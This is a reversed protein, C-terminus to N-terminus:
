VPLVENHLFAHHSNELYTIEPDVVYQATGLLIGQKDQFVSGHEFGSPYKLLVLLLERYLCLHCSFLHQLTGSHISHLYVLPHSYGQYNVLPLTAM